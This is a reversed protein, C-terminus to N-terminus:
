FFRQGVRVTDGPLVRATESVARGEGSRGRVLTIDDPDARYAYGGALAVAKMVTLGREYDYRGPEKVEGLVFVPEHNLVRVSVRADNLYDPEYANAIRAGAQRVTLGALRVRGVLGLSVAGAGDLTAETSLREHGHVLIELRDGPALRYRRPGDGADAVAPLLLAVLAVLALLPAYRM